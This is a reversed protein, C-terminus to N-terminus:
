ESRDNQLNELALDRILPSFDWRPSGELLWFAEFGRPVM